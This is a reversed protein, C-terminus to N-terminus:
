DRTDSRLWYTHELWLSDYSGARVEASIVVRGQNISGHVASAPGAQLQLSKLLELVAERLHSVGDASHRGAGTILIVDDNLPHGSRHLQQMRKLLCLVAARAEV